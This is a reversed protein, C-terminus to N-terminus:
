KTVVSAVTQLKQAVKEVANATVNDKAVAIAKAIAKADSAGHAIICVGKIGLLPAGGYERWDLRKGLARLYPRLLLGALKTRWNTLMLDKIERWIFLGIGEAAKLLINGVFGDTVVVDAAGELLDRGEVNGVFNLPASQLLVFAEKATSTGKIAEEGINLLAVRPTSIGMVAEAYAAGMLAFQLFHEPKCDVNAGVDLLLFRGQHHPLVLAIAPRTIPPLCRVHLTAATVAAGTNGPTVFADVEGSGLLKMGVVLSADPKRRVAVLPPEDMGIVQSALAFRVRECLPSPITLSQQAELDAVITVSIDPHEQVATLVGAALVSPPHDAGMIDVAVRVNAMM